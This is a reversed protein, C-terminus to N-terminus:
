TTGAKRRHLFKQGINRRVPLFFFSIFLLASIGGIFVYVKNITNAQIQLANHNGFNIYGAWYYPNTRIKDSSNLYDLKALRLAEDKPKGDSLYSYFGKMMEAGSQDNIEWLTMVLSPCGAYMFGRALCLMGEGKVLKGAGTKCSSLVSLQSNIQMNYLEYANLLGNDGDGQEFALKSYMPNEDDIMTHMALHLIGHGSANAKFNKITANSGKYVDGDIISNITSVEDLGGKLPKLSDLYDRTESGENLNGSSVNEYTPVFALLTNKANKSINNKEFLLTGSAAYSVANR